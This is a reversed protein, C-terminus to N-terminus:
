DGEEDAGDIVTLTMTDGAKFTCAADTQVYAVFAGNVLAGDTVTLTTESLGEGSVKVSKVVSLTEPFRLELRLIGSQRFTGGHATAWDHAFSAKGDAGIKVGKLEAGYVIHDFTGSAKQTQAAPADGVKGYVIDVAKGATWEGSFSGAAGVKGSLTLQKGGVTLVDGDKWELKFGNKGDDSLAVRTEVGEIGPLTVTLLASAGEARTEAPGATEVPLIEQKCAAALLLAALILYHKKMVRTQKRFIIPVSPM